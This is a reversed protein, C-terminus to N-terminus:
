AVKKAAEVKEEVKGVLRNWLSPKGEGIKITQTKPATEEKKPISVRLVGDEFNAEIKDAKINEGLDILRQFKGYSRESLYSQPTEEKHEKKKEGM